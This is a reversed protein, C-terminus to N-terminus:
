IHTSAIRRRSPDRRSCTGGTSYQLRVDLDRVRGFGAAQAASPSKMHSAGLSKLCRRLDFSADNRHAMLMVTIHHLTGCANERIFSHFSTCGRVALSQLAPCTPM